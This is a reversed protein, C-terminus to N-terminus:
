CSLIYRFKIQRVRHHKTYSVGDQLYVAFLTYVYIVHHNMAAFMAVCVSPTIKTSCESVHCSTKCQELTHFCCTTVCYNVYNMTVLYMCVYETWQDLRQLLQMHIHFMDIVDSLVLCVSFHM